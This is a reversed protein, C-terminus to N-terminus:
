WGGSFWVHVCYEPFKQAPIRKNSFLIVAGCNQASRRQVPALKPNERCRHQLCIRLQGKSQLRYVANVHPLM